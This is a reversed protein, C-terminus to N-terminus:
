LYNLYQFRTTIIIILTTILTTPIPWSVDTMNIIEHHQRLFQNKCVLWIFYPKTTIAAKFIRKFIGIELMKKLGFSQFIKM